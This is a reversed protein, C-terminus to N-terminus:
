SLSSRSRRARTRAGARHLIGAQDGEGVVGAASGALRSRSGAAGASGADRGVLEGVHPEAVQHRHGPPVVEPEVLGEGVPQAVLRGVPQAGLEAGAAGLEAVDVRQHGGVRAGGGLRDPQRVGVGLRHHLRDAEGVGLALRHEAHDLAPEPLLGEPAPDVVVQAGVGPPDRDAGVEPSREPRGGAAVDRRHERAEEVLGANGEDGDLRDAGGAQADRLPAVGRGADRHRLEGPLDRHPQAGAAAAGGRGDLKRRSPGAM